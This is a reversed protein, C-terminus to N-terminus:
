ARGRLPTGPRLRQAGQAPRRPFGSGRDDAQDLPKDFYELAAAAVGYSRAGLYIQNLYLEMIKDKSLAQEIRFSLIIEKVKRTFKAVKDDHEAALEDKLLFNKAVQQTITSAGKMRKGPHLLDTIAARAIGYPDVGLHSYFNKDEASMFSHIVLPPVDSVPVFVRKEAAFEALLRGDSAYARTVIPPQYNTLASFDPLDRGFYLLIAVGGGVGGIIALLALSFLMMVLRSFVGPGRDASKRPSPIAKPPAAKAKKGPKRNPNDEPKASLDAMKRVHEMKIPGTASGKIFQEVFLNGSHDIDKANGHWIIQGKYIMAIEDAIKRASAMDHTISLTTAGLGKSTEIILDNIVDAMIPDLGTTPEDFFIIEPNAAIARALGVRKQM